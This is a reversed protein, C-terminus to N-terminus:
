HLYWLILINQEYINFFFNATKAHYQKAETLYILSNTMM